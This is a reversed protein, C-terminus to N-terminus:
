GHTIGRKMQKRLSFLMDLVGIIAIVQQFVPLFIGIMVLFVFKRKRLISCSLMCTIAGYALAFLFACLFAIVIIMSVEQNLKLVNRMFFLVSIIIIVLATRPQVCVDFISKMERTKIKLRKLLLKAIMHICITQMVSMTIAVVVVIYPLLKTMSFALTDLHMVDMMMRAMEIDDSPQYGFISAFVITTLSYSVLTVLGTILLLTGNKWNRRVGEGYAVGVVVCCFVYFITTSASIMVSMMMMCVSTLIGYKIGYKATYVLIPFTLIWYMVYEIINAFQRNVFLMVGVLAVMMAGESLKRTQNNM